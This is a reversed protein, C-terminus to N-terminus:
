GPKGKREGVQTDYDLRDFIQVVDMGVMVGRCM